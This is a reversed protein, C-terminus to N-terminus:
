KKCHFNGTQSTDSMDNEFHICRCLGCSHSLCTFEDHDGASRREVIVNDDVGSCYRETIDRYKKSHTKQM